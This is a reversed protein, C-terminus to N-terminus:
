DHKGSVTDPVGQIGLGDGKAGRGSLVYAYKDLTVARFHRAYSSLHFPHQARGILSSTHPGTTLFLSEKYIEQDKLFDHQQCNNKTALLNV